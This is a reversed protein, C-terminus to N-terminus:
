ETTGDGDTTRCRRLFDEVDARRFRLARGISHGPLAGRRVMRYITIDTVQLLDALQRVTYFEPTQQM